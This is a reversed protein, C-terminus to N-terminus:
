ASVKCQASLITCWTLLTLILIWHLSNEESLLPSVEARSARLECRCAPAATCKVNAALLLHLHSAGASPSPSGQSRSDNGFSEPFFSAEWPLCHFPLYTWTVNENSIKKKKEKNQPQHNKVSGLQHVEWPGCIQWEDVRIEGHSRWTKDHGTNGFSVSCGAPSWVCSREWQKEELCCGHTSCRLVWTPLLCLSVGHGAARAAGAWMKCSLQTSLGLECHPRFFSFGPVPCTRHQQRVHQPMFAALFWCFASGLHWYAYKGEEPM